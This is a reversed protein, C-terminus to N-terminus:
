NKLSIKYKWLSIDQRLASERADSLYVTHYPMKRVEQTHVATTFTSKDDTKKHYVRTALNGNLKYVLTDLFAEETMSHEATFKISEHVRNIYDLFDELKDKGHTCIIFVDDILRHWKRPKLKSNKLTEQKVSHMLIIAYNPAMRTGM